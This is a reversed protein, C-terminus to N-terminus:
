LCECEHQHVDLAELRTSELGSPDTTQILHEGHYRITAFLKKDM